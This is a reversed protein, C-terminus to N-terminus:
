SKHVIVTDVTSLTHNVNIYVKHVSKWYCCAVIVLLLVIFTSCLISLVASLISDLKQGSSPQELGSVALRFLWMGEIGANTENTVNVSGATWSHPYLWLTSYLYNFLQVNLQTEDRTYKPVAIKMCKYYISAYIAASSLFDGHLEEYLYFVYSTEHDTAFM